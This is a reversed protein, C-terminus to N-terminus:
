FGSAWDRGRGSFFRGFWRHNRWLDGGTRERIVTRQESFDGWTGRRLASRRKPERLLTPFEEFRAVGRFSQGAQFLSDNNVRGVGVAIKIQGFGM